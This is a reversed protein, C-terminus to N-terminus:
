NTARGRRRIVIAVGLAGLGVLVMAWEPAPGLQDSLTTTSRLPVREVL